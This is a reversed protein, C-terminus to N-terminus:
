SLKFSVVDLALLKKVNATFSFLVYIQFPVLLSLRDDLQVSSFFVIIYTLVGTLLGCRFLCFYGLLKQVLFQTGQFM